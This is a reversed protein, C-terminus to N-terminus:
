ALARLRPSQLAPPESTASAKNGAPALSSTLRLAFRGAEQAEGGSGPDALAVRRAVLRQRGAGETVWMLSQAGGDPRALRRLHRGQADELDLAVGQGEFEGQVVHGAPLDVRWFERGGAALGGTAAQGPALTGPRAALAQRSAAATMDEGAHVAAGLLCLLSAAM